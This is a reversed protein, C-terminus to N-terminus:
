CSSLISAHSMNSSILYFILLGDKTTCSGHAIKQWLSRLFQVSHFSVLNLNHSDFCHWSRSSHIFHLLSFQVLNPLPLTAPQSLTFQCPSDFISVKVQECKMLDAFLERDGVEESVSIQPFYGRSDVDVGSRYWWSSWIMMAEEDRSARVTSPIWPLPTRDTLGASSMGVNISALDKSEFVRRRNLHNHGTMTLFFAPAERLSKELLM